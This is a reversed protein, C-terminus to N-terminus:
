NKARAFWPKVKSSYKQFKITKSMLNNEDIEVFTKCNPKNCNTTIIWSSLWHMVTITIIIWFQIVLFCSTFTVKHKWAKLEHNQYKLLSKMCINSIIMRKSDRNMGCHQHQHLDYMHMHSNSTYTKQQKPVLANEHNQHHKKHSVYFDHACYEEDGFLLQHIHIM